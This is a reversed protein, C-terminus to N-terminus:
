KGNFPDAQSYFTRTKKVVEWYNKHPKISLKTEIDFASLQWTQQAKKLSEWM